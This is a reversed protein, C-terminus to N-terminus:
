YVNQNDCALFVYQEIHDVELKLIPSQVQIQKIVCKSPIDYVKFTKDLSCSFARQMSAGYSFKVQTVESTHEGFETLCGRVGQQGEAFQDAKREEGLALLAALTWVKVKSDKGGTIVLDGQWPSGRAVDLDTVALYHASEVEGILTGTALQYILIKGKKSGCVLMEQGQMSGFMKVVSLEEKTPSKLCPQSTKDWRWAAMTTKQVHSGIVHGTPSVQLTNASMYFKESKFTELPALTATEWVCVQDCEASTSAILSDSFKLLGEQFNLEDEVSTRSKQM